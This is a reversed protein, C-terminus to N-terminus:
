GGFPGAGGSWGEGTGRRGWKRRTGGGMRRDGTRLLLDVDGWKGGSRYRGSEGGRRLVRCQLLRSLVLRTRAIQGTAPLPRPGGIWPCPRAGRAHTPQTYSRPPAVAAKLSTRPLRVVPPASSSALACSHLCPPAAAAAFTGPMSSGAMVGDDEQLDGGKVQQQGTLEREEM